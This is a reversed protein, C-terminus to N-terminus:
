KVMSYIEEARRATEKWTFYKCRMRGQKGMKELLEGNDLLYKISEALEEINNPSVYRVADGGVEPLSSVNSTIVPCGCAMAELVPLGFGEYESPFLFIEACSLLVRKQKQSVYGTLIIDERHNCEALISELQDSFVDEKKGALVLQLNSISERIISYASIIERLGKRYDLAGLYLLFPREINMDKIVAENTERYIQEDDFGPSVVYIRKKEFGAYEILDKKTNESDAMISYDREKIFALTKEFMLRRDESWYARFDPLVPMIDHVTVVVPCTANATIGASYPFHLVDFAKGFCEEYNRKNYISIDDELFGRRVERYDLSNCEYVNENSIFELYQEM